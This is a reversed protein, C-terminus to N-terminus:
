TSSLTRRRSQQQHTCLRHVAEAECHQWTRQVGKVNTAACKGHLGCGAHSNTTNSEYSMLMSPCGGPCGCWSAARVMRSSCFILSTSRSFIENRGPSFKSVSRHHQRCSSLPRCLLSVPLLSRSRASWLCIEQDTGNKHTHLFLVAWIAHLTRLPPEDFKAAAHAVGLQLPKLCPKKHVSRRKLLADRPQTSSLHM